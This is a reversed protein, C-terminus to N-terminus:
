QPSSTLTLAHCAWAVRGKISGSPNLFELKNWIEVQPNPSMHRLRVLPTNGVCALVDTRWMPNRLQKPLLGDAVRLEHAVVDELKKVV